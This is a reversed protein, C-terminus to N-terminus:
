DDLEIETAMHREGDYDFDIEVRQGVELDDFSSLGDDYDTSDDTHFTIGQVTLTQNDGDVAEIEGEIDDAHAAAAFTLTLSSAVCAIRKLM